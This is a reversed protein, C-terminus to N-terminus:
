IEIGHARFRRKLKSWELNIKTIEGNVGPNADPHYVRVLRLYHAHCEAALAHLDIQDRMKERQVNVGFISMLGWISPGRKRCPRPTSRVLATCPIPRGRRKQIKEKIPKRDLKCRKKRTFPGIVRYVTAQSVGAIQQVRRMDLHNDRLLNLLYRKRVRWLVSKLKRPM